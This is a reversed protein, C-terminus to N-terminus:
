RSGGVPQLYKKVFELDSAAYETQPRGHWVRDPSERTRVIKRKGLYTVRMSSVGLLSSAEGLTLWGGPDVVGRRNIAAVLEGYVKCEDPAPKSPKISVGGQKRVRVTNRCLQGCYRPICGYGKRPIRIGCVVCVAIHATEQADAKRVAEIDEPTVGRWVRNATTFDTHADLLRRFRYPGIGVLEAAQNVSVHQRATSQLGNEREYRRMLQRARERTIGLVEAVKTLPTGTDRASKLVADRERNKPTDPRARRRVVGFEKIAIRVTSPSVEFKKAIDKQTTDPNDAAYKAILQRRSRSTLNKGVGYERLVNKVFSTSVRFHEAVEKIKMTPNDQSFDAVSERLERTRYTGCLGAEKMFLKVTAVSVSFAQAADEASKYAGAEMAAVIAARRARCKEYHM